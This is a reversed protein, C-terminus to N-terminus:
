LFKLTHCVDSIVHVDYSCTPHPFTSIISEYTQGFSCGLCKAAEQNVYTGDWVVSLTTLGADALLSLATKVLQSLVCGSIKNCLFYGIVSKWSRGTLGVVMFVLSETALEESSEVQANGYNVFGSYQQNKPDWLSQKRIHIGDIILTVDNCIEGNTVKMKLQEIVESLFGPQCEVSCCWNRISSSHPLHLIKRVYDYAKPSHYHLTVAFQKATDSYRKGKPNLKHNKTTNKIM